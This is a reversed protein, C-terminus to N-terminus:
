PLTFLGDLFDFHDIIDQVVVDQNITKIVSADIYAIYFYGVILYLAEEYSINRTKIDIFEDIKPCVKCWTLLPWQSTNLEEHITERVKFFEFDKPNEASERYCEVVAKVATQHDILLASHEGPGGGISIDNIDMTEFLFPTDILDGTPVEELLRYIPIDFVCGHFIHKHCDIASM